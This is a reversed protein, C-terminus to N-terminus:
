EQPDPSNSIRPVLDFILASKAPAEAGSEESLSERNAAGARSEFYLRSEKSFIFVLASVESLSQFSAAARSNFFIYNGSCRSGVNIQQFLFFVIQQTLISVSGCPFCIVNFFCLFNNKNKLVCNAKIDLMKRLLFKETVQNMNQLNNNLIMNKINETYM